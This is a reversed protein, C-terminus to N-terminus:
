YFLTLPPATEETPHGPRTQTLEQTRAIRSVLAAIGWFSIKIRKIFSFQRAAHDFFAYLRAQTFHCSDPDYVLPLFPLFFRLGQKKLLPSISIQSLGLNFTPVRWTKQSSWIINIEININNIHSNDTGKTLRTDPHHVVCHSLLTFSTIDTKGARIWIVETGSLLHRTQKRKGEQLVSFWPTGSSAKLNNTATYVLEARHSQSFQM